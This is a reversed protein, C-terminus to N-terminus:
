ALKMVFALAYYAPEHNVTDHSQVPHDGPQTVTHGLLGHWLCILGSPLSNSGGEVSFLDELFILRGM